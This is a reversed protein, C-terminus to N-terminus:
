ATQNRKPPLPFFASTEKQYDRYADGKSELSRKETPPIGTVNLLFHLMLAPSILSIWWLPSNVSLPILGLWFAWQFFYNPHRSYRWLGKRCVKKPDNNRKKFSALQWDSLAEGAISLLCWALGLLTWVSVVSTPAAIAVFLPLCLAFSGLAQFQYFLLMRPKAKEGWERAFEVYRPDDEDHALTRKLLHGGLRISYLLAVACIIGTSLSFAGQLFLAFVVANFGVSFSWIPDVIAWKGIRVAVLWTAAFALMLALLTLFAAIFPNM